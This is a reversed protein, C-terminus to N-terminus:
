NLEKKIKIIVKKLPPIETKIFNWMIEVNFSFYEHSIINRIEKLHKWKIEPYNKLLKKPLKKISEGIVQCRMGSADLLELDKQFATFSVKSTSKEIRSIAEILDNIYVNYEFM